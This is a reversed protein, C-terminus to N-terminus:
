YIGLEDRVLHSVVSIFDGNTPKGTKQRIKGEFLPFLIRINGRDFTQEVATRICREVNTAPCHHLQGVSPYLEGVINNLMSPNQVSLSIADILYYFGHTTMPTQLHILEKKTHNRIRTNIGASRQERTRMYLYQEMRQLTIGIDLPDLLFLDGGQNYFRTALADNRYLSRTIKVLPDPYEQEMKYTIEDCNMGPLFPDMILINPHLRAALEAVQLGQDTVGVVNCGFAQFRRSLTAAEDADSIALLIRFQM